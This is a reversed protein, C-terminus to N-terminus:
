RMRSSAPMNSIKEKVKQVDISEEDHYAYQDIIALEIFDHKVPIEARNSELTLEM